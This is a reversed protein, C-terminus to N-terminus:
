PAAAGTRRGTAVGRQNVWAVRWSSLATPQASSRAGDFHDIRTLSCNEVAFGLAQDPTLGLALALAARISGGHAVAIIDQGRYRQTLREVAQGVREVMRAFSEGGPPAIHAPALWFRHWEEGRRERLEDHTLGQWDGFHQEAIDPEVILEPLTQGATRLIAAATQQTRQLHSAVWIARKPLLAPLHQFQARDDCDAPLDDQGYIRGKHATVPAHRIWWWRTMTEGQTEGQTERQTQRQIKSQGSM